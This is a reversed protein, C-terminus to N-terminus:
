SQIFNTRNGREPKPIEIGQQKGAEICKLMWAMNTGINRMTQLGEFDLEVDEPSNGHVGNWYTSSIVPMCSITMYKNVADLSASIGTRRASAVAAGPKYRFSSAGAYFMRDMASLLRGSPHAYYVPTGFIFGDAEKAMTIYQNIEDDDFVCLGNLDRCSGCGTCDRIPKKGLCIIESEIGEKLLVKAIENLARNTCGNAKGSGNFMLVKM